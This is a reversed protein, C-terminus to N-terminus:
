TSMAFAQMALKLLSSSMRGSLWALTAQLHFSMTSSLLFILMCYEAASAKLLSGDVFSLNNFSNASAPAIGLSLINWNISTGSKSLPYENDLLAILATILM